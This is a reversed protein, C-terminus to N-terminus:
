DWMGRDQTTLRAGCKPCKLKIPEKDEYLKIEHETKENCTCTRGHFSTGDTFLVEPVAQLQGCDRCKGLRYRFTLYNSKKELAMVKVSWLDMLDFHSYIRKLKYDKRGCGLPFIQQYGCGPCHVECLYGM